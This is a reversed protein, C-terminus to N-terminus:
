SAIHELDRSFCLDRQKPIRKINYPRLQNPKCTVTRITFHAM